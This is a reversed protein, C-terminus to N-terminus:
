MYENFSNEQLRSILREIIFYLLIAHAIGSGLNRLHRKLATGDAAVLAEASHEDAAELKSEAGAVTTPKEKHAPEKKAPAPALATAPKAAPVM